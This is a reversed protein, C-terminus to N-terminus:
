KKVPKFILFKGKDELEFELDEWKKSEIIAIAIVKFYDSINLYELIIL